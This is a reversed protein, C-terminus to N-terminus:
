LSSSQVMLMKHASIRASQKGILETILFWILQSLISMNWSTIQDRGVLTVQVQGQRLYTRSDEAEFDKM